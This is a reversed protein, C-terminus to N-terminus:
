IPRIPEIIWHDKHHVFNKKGRLYLLIIQINIYKSNLTEFVHVYLISACVALRASVHEEFRREQIGGVGLAKSGLGIWNKTKQVCGTM